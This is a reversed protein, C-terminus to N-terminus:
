GHMWRVVLQSFDTNNLARYKEAYSTALSYARDDTLIEATKDAVFLLCDYKAVQTGFFYGSMFILIFLTAYMQNNM